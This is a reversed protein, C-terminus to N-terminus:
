APFVMLKELPPLVTNAIHNLIVNFTRPIPWRWVDHGKSGVCLGVGHAGRIEVDVKVPSAYAVTGDKMAGAASHHIQGNVLVDVQTLLRDAAFLEKHEDADHLVRLIELAHWDAPQTGQQAAKFPQL